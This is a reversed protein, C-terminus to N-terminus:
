GGLLKSKLLKLGDELAGATPVRGDPTLRDVLMPLVQALGTTVGETSLGTKQALQGIQASGLADQIQQASVPLNPGTSVWSSVIDGLGKGQFQKVLGALGGSEPSKLLSMVGDVLGTQSGAAGGLKKSLAGVADDLLGM